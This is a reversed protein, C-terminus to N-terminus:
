TEMLKVRNEGAIEQLEKLISENLYIGGAPKIQENDIIQIAINNKEGMFFKLAGRLRDKCEEDLDTIDISLVKKTKNTFERISNAVIKPEEDERISLRGEILVINEDILISNSKQFCSDFVIIECSGYLDEVTVFAM